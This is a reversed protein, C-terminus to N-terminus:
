KAPAHWRGVGPPGRAPPRGRPDIRVHDAVDERLGCPENGDEERDRDDDEEESSSDRRTVDSGHDDAGVARCGLLYLLDPM